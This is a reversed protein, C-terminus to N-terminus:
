FNNRPVLLNIMIPFMVFELVVISQNKKIGATIKISKTTITRDFYGPLLGYKLTFAKFSQYSMKPRDATPESTSLIRMPIM